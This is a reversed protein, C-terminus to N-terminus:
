KMHIPPLDSDEGGGSGVREQFEKKYIQQIANVDGQSPYSSGIAIGAPKTIITPGVCNGTSNRKCAANAGYHMVSRFDYVGIDSANSVRKKFAGEREPKINDWMITVHKDRDERSQEHHLGLAHGIEHRLGRGDCSGNSKLRITQRGGVRGISSFCADPSSGRVFEIYDKQTTREVFKIDTLYEWGRMAAKIDAPVAGALNDEDIVYPVIGLPWRYHCDWFWFTFCGVDTAIAQPGLESQILNGKSDVEGLIIDGEFIAYDGVIEYTVKQAESSGPLTIEVERLNGLSTQPEKVPAQSNQCAVMFVISLVMLIAILSKLKAMMLFDGQFKSNSKVEIQSAGECVKVQYSKNKM